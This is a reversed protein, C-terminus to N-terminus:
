KTSTVEIIYDALRRNLITKRSHHAQGHFDINDGVWDGRYLKLGFM